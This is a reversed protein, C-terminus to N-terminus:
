VQWREAAVNHVLGQQAGLEGTDLDMAIAGCTAAGHPSDPKMEIEIFTLEYPNANIVNHEVPAMRPYSQGVM